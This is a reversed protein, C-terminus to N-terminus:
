VIEFKQDSNLNKLDLRNQNLVRLHVYPVHYTNKQESTLNKVFLFKNVHDISSLKRSSAFININETASTHLEKITNYASLSDRKILWEKM